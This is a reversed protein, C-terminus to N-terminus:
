CYQTFLTVKYNYSFMILPASDHSLLGETKLEGTVLFYCFLHCYTIKGSPITPSVHMDTAQMSQIIVTNTSLMTTCKQWIDMPKCNSIKSILKWHQYIKNIKKIMSFQSTNARQHKQMTLNFIRNTISGAVQYGL